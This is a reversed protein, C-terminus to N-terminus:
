VVLLGVGVVFVIANVVFNLVQHHHENWILVKDVYDKGKIKARHELHKKINYMAVILLIFPVSFIIAYFILMPLAALAAANNISISQLTMFGESRLGLSFLGTVFGLIVVGGPTRFFRLKNLLRERSEESIFSPKHQFFAYIGGAGLSVAILGILKAFYRSISSSAFERFLGLGFLLNLGVIMMVFLVGLQISKQKDKVVSLLLLFILLVALIAMSTSDQIASGAILTFSITDLVHYPQKSGVLGIAFSDTLSPCAVNNNERISGDLYQRISDNGILYSGHMFVVPVGRSNKEVSFHEFYDDLLKENSPSHYVEYKQLNLSPYKVILSDIYKEADNCEVCNKGYFYYLCDNEVALASTSLLSLFLVLLVLYKIKVDM